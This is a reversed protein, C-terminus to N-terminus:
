PNSWVERLFEQRNWNAQAEKETASAAARDVKPEGSGSGAEARRDRPNMAQQPGAAAEPNTSAAYQDPTVHETAQGASAGASRHTTAGEGSPSSTAAGEAHAATAVLMVVSALYTNLKM